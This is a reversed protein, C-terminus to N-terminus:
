VLWIYLYLTCICLGNSTENQALITMQLYPIDWTLISYIRIGFLCLVWIAQFNLIFMVKAQRLHKANHATSTKVKPENKHQDDMDKRYDSWRVCVEASSDGNVRFWRITIDRKFRLSESLSSLLLLLFCFAVNLDFLCALKCILKIISWLIDIFHLYLLNRNWNKKLSDFLFCQKIPTQSNFKGTLPIKYTQLEALVEMRTPFNQAM